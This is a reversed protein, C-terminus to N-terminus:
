LRAIMKAVNLRYRIMGQLNMLDATRQLSAPITSLPYVGTTVLQAQQQTLGTYDPLLAQVPGPMAAQVSAQSLASQFATVASANDTAWSKTTIYGALPIGATAGSCADILEIAGQQQALYVDLGSVLIAKVQGNLLAKIEDQHPMPKWNVGALNVGYGQLVSSATAIALSSPAGPPASVQEDDPAAITQNALQGPNAIHASPVTMIEIVGPAADYGDALVKYIPTQAAAQSFFIDGYDAAAINATGSNLAAMARSVTAYRRLKVTIGAKKFLQDQMALYLTANAIDPVAAVTVVTGSPGSSLPSMPNCGAVLLLPGLGALV